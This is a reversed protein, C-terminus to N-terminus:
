LPIVPYHNSIIPWSLPQYIHNFSRPLGKWSDARDDFTPLESLLIGPISIIRIITPYATESTTTLCVVISMLALAYM